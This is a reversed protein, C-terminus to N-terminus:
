WHLLRCTSVQGYKVTAYKKSITTIKGSREHVKHQESEYLAMIMEVCTELQPPTYSTYFQLTMSWSSTHSPSLTRVIYIASATLQSADYAIM